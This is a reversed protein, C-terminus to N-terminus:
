LAYAIPRYNEPKAPNGKKFISDVFAENFTDPVVHNKWCFNMIKHIINRAKDDLYKYLEGFMNYPGAATNDKLNDIAKNTKSIHFDECDLERAIDRINKENIRDPM